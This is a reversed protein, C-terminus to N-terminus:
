TGDWCCSAVLGKIECFAALFLLIFISKASLLFFYGQAGCCVVFHKRNHPFDCRVLTEAHRTFDANVVGQAGGSCVDCTGRCLDDGGREGLAEAIMKRRCTTMAQARCVRPPMIM